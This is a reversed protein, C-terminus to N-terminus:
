INGHVKLYKVQMRVVELGYILYHQLHNILGHVLENIEGIFLYPIEQHFTLEM